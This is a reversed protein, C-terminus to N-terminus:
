VKTLSSSYFYRNNSGLKGCKTTSVLTGFGRLMDLECIRVITLSFSDLAEIAVNFEVVSYRCGPNSM